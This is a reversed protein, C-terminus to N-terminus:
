GGFGKCPDERDVPNTVIWLDFPADSGPHQELQGISLVSIDPAAMGLAVPMGRGKDAHGSGTIVVVPGGTLRLAELATRSFAADRLRQAAVMAPLIDPPLANCHATQQDAERASQEALPLPQDLGFRAAEPGFVEAAGDTMARRVTERPLAAGFIQADPAATFIPHYMEFAPWGSGAWGLAVELALPDQRDVGVAAKAQNPTLMEFVLASPHIAAVVRAQHLHHVPNDHIEGVIVIRAPPLNALVDPGIEAAVAPLGALALWVAGCTPFLWYRM